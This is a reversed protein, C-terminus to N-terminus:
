VVDHMSGSLSGTRVVSRPVSKAPTSSIQAWEQGEWGHWPYLGEIRTDPTFADAIETHEEEWHWRAAQMVQRDVEKASVHIGIEPLSESVGAYADDTAETVIREKAGLTFHTNSLANSELIPSYECDCQECRYRPIQVNAEGQSTM